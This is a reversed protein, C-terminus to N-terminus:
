ASRVTSPAIVCSSIRWAGDPQRQMGYIAVLVTGDPLVLRLPQVVDGGIVAGDLFEVYRADVLARYGQQVMRMFTAVDGFHSRISPAAFSFAREGDGAVLADRQAAIVRKIETWDSASPADQAFAHVALVCTALLAIRLAAIM